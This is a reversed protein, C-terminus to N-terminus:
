GMSMFSSGSKEPNFQNIIKGNPDTYCISGSKPGSFYSTMVSGDEERVKQAIQKGSGPNFVDYVTKNDDTYKVITKGGKEYTKHDFQSYVASMAKFENVKPTGGLFSM